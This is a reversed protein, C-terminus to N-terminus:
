KAKAITAAVNGPTVYPHSPDPVLPSGPAACKAFKLFDAIKQLEGSVLAALAVFGDTQDGGISISGDNNFRLQQSSGDPGIIFLSNTGPEPSGSSLGNYPSVFDTPDVIWHGGFRRIHAPDVPKNSRGQAMWTSPDIDFAKLVVQDNPNLTGAITFSPKGNAGGFRPWAVPVGMLIDWQEFIPQGTAIDTRPDNQMPQIDATRTTPYYKVVAGGMKFYLSAKFSDQYAQINQGDTLHRKM